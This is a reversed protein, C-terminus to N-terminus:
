EKLIAVTLKILSVGAAMGWLFSEWNVNMGTLLGATFIGFFFISTKM